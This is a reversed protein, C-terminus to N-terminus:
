TSGTTEKKPAVRMVQRARHAARDRRETATGANRVQKKNFGESADLVAQALNAVDARCPKGTLRLMSDALWRLGEGHVGAADTRQPLIAVLDDNVRREGDISMRVIQLAERLEESIQSKSLFECVAAFHKAAVVAGRIKGHALAAHVPFL